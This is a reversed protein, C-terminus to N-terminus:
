VADRVELERRAQDIVQKVFDPDPKGPRHGPRADMVTQLIEEATPRQGIPLKTLATMLEGPYLYSLADLYDDEESSSMFQGPFTAKLYEVAKGAQSASLTPM